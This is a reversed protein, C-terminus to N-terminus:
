QGTFRRASLWSPVQRGFILDVLSKATNFALGMGHGTYGGLFFVQNDDPLAGVMPQGDRSFGMIGAWRHSIRKEKFQPLHTCVFEHLATQIVETLHDSYGVETAKELQRFGGILLEGSPLQRFYDLYFNAYCPGNMFRPVKEMMLIQARTPFIKDSFYPHAQASYGNLAYILMACEFSGSDTKIFRSGSPSKEYGYVETSELLTLNGVKSAMRELLRMPHVTADDIYQIGGMFGSVGLSNEIESQEFIKTPIKINDMIEAVKKLEVFESAHTALSFCGNKEFQLEQPKDQIINEELLRLNEESFKWIDTAEELGHKAVMRNFHEVSGCTIFGANRGSAGFGLRNREIVAIKLTPDEKNLWFATSLGSIGAGVIIVDFNRNTITTSRDLWFSTSM